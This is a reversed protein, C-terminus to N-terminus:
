LHNPHPARPDSIAVKRRANTGPGIATQEPREARAGRNKRPTAETLGPLVAKLGPTAGGLPFGSSFNARANTQRARPHPWEARALCAPARAARPVRPTPPTAPTLPLATRSPPIPRPRIPDPDRRAPPLPRPAARRAAAARARALKYKSVRRDACRGSSFASGLARAPIGIRGRAWAPVSASCEGARVRAPEGRGWGVGRGGGGAAMNSARRM